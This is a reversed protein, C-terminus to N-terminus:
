RCTSSSAQQTDNACSLGQPEHARHYPRSSHQLSSSRPPVIVALKPFPSYNAIAARTTNPSNLGHPQPDQEKRGIRDSIKHPRAQTPIEPLPKEPPPTSPPGMLHLKAALLFAHHQEKPLHSNNSKSTERPDPMPNVQIKDSPQHYQYAGECSTEPDSQGDVTGPPSRNFRISRMFKHGFCQCPCKESSVGMYPSETRGQYFHKRVWKLHFSGNLQKTIRPM